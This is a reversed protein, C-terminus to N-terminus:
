GKAGRVSFETGLVMIEEVVHSKAEAYADMSPWEQKALERKVAEYRNRAASDGRLADRFLLYRDIEVSGRSYIHVHVSRDPTRVMRHEDLDPERVRLTYGARELTPLYSAENASNQVVLLMDVIPKAALGPVSTSGIHEIRLAAQGLAARLRQAHAEFIQAWAPDHDVLRIERKEIGGILHSGPM